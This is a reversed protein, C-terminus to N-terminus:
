FYFPRQQSKGSGDEWPVSPSLHDMHYTDTVERKRQLPVERLETLLCGFPQSDMRCIDLLNRQRPLGNVGSPSVIDMIDARYVERHLALGPQDTPGPVPIDGQELRLGIDKRFRDLLRCERGYHHSHPRRAEKGGKKQGPRADRGNHQLTSPVYVGPGSIYFM